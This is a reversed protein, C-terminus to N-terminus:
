TIDYVMVGGIRELTIFAYTAGNIEAVTVGEPEPGKNDSRNKFNGNDNSANFMAGFVPDAATIREFDAGSDFVLEGTQANWISFSRSGFAHIEDFDGDGDIDGSQSTVALRGLNFNKKFVDANPFVTPDLLYDADGVKAEEELNDYERADGENATVLYTTGNVTYNAMADPMFMGKIPWNAMFIQGNQDSTDLANEPLSHDKTGLPLLDIVTNTVLDIVGVANNEQLTVWAKTGDGSVTIYEPELDESVSSGPGFIRIGQAKLADLQSDFANFNINTVNAQSINGLGASVDIVSVSGEPDISYDSNPQGENATLVKTGDPSFTVMDPLVGAEVSQINEGNIDMFIVKGNQFDAGEVTAAVLGNKFAVSTAGIGYAAMDIMAIEEIAEPNAFDLIALKTATSNVVFLRQSVPDHAVIEASGTPDVTYSSLHTINLADTGPEAQQDDDTIYISKTAITGPSAGTVQSLQLVMFRDNRAQADNLIPINVTIPASSNAPFEITQSTFTYDQDAVASGAGAVVSVTVSVPAAAANSLAVQVAAQGASEDVF